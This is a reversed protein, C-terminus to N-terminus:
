AKAATINSAQAKRGTQRDGNTNMVIVPANMKGLENGDPVQV